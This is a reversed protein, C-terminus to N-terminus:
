KTVENNWTFAVTRSDWHACNHDIAVIRNNTSSFYFLLACLLLTSFASFVCGFLLETKDSM